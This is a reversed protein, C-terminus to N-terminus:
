AAHISPLSRIDFVLLRVKQRAAPDKPLLLTSQDSGRTDNIYEIISLSQTLHQGDIFLTPLERM